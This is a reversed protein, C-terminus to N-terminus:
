ESYKINGEIKRMSPPKTWLFKCTKWYFNNSNNYNKSHSNCFYPSFLGHLEHFGTENRQLFYLTAQLSSSRRQNPTQTKLKTKPTLPTLQHPKLCTTHPRRPKQPKGEGPKPKRYLCLLTVRRLFFMYKSPWEPAMLRWNIRSNALTLSSVAHISNCQNHSLTDPTGFDIQYCLDITIKSPLPEISETIVLQIPNWLRKRCQWYNKTMVNNDDVDDM